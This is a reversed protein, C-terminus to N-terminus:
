EKGGEAVDSKASLENIWGLLDPKAMPIEVEEIEVASKKVDFQEMLNDRTSRSDAQTGAFRTGLVKDGDKATVQYARM